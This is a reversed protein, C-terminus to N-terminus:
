HVPQLYPPIHWQQLVNGLLQLDCQLRSVSDASVEFTYLRAIRMQGRSDRALWIKTCAVTEDLLQLQCRQALERGIRIATERKAITDQWYWIIFATVLLLCSEFM